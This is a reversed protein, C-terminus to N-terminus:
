GALALEIPERYHAFLTARLAAHAPQALSPDAAILEHASARTRELLEVDRALDALKLRPLGSQRVGWLEGPGRLELDAEAIRFGDETGAVLELRRRALASAGPGPVLVCVSRHAGRGVRGRLQHLQTLGFREANEIVLLTANPVDVGVEVVTTSVLVDIDGAAFRRMVDQKDDAKLRGHLLGLQFRELVPHSGLRQFEAEAARMDARGGEEIVPVVVYAQRGAALETAMFELVQPFKEEGAVRTVLRGRGAPRARLTSVKLDGYFALQLTRPIPTATLVLVDPIVAKQALTARQRVGFRHQEDVVVLGLNPLRVKEELLAQTGVVVMPEGADLRAQLAKREAAPTAGTLVAVPVNTAAAFGGLTGGHQRALIETPAMFAVQFGSAVAHVSALWAVATKGSGVDGLLMRHMPHPEAMDAVIETLAQRQGDTLAFPLAAEARTPLESAGATVLGGGATLAHRRIELVSQLLFLEEFALRRRAAELAAEDEPLHIAWLAAALPGLGHAARVEDPVPDPVLAAVRELAAHVAARMARATLGKTLAHVPVLRGVHLREAVEGEMVEFLPNMMRGEVADLEGSVVVRVGKKLTRALFPQGFFYLPLRAGSGDELTAVFDTRGARTRLSAARGITGEVTVLEGAELEAIRVFTRADLWTRPYHRLLQELTVIGLREFALARKPGVGPLFQVRSDPGLAASASATAM